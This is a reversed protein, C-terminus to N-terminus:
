PQLLRRVASRHPDNPFQVLFRTARRSAETRDGKEYLAEITAVEADARLTGTPFNAQYQSLLNLARDYAGARAAARAADLAAVEATLTSPTPASQAENSELSGLQAVKALAPQPRASVPSALLRARVPATRSPAADAILAPGNGNSAQPAVASPLTPRPPTAAVSGTQIPQSPRPSGFWAFTLASGGLAGLLLCKGAGLRSLVGLRVVSQAGAQAGGAVVAASALLGSFRLWAQETAEASVGDLRASDLLTREFMEVVEPQNHDTTM